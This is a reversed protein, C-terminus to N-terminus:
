FRPIARERIALRSRSSLRQKAWAAVRLLWAAVLAGFVAHHAPGGGNRISGYYIDTALLWVAYVGIKHLYRWNAPGLRRAAWKSSTLTLLLLFGAGILDLATPLPSLPNGFSWIMYAVFSFHWAMGSAFALGIYRRNALLWRTGASPWLVALSSATFAVLFLPLSCRVARLIIPGMGRTSHFDANPLGLLIATSTALALVGFLPWSKPAKM